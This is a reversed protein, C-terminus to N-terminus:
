PMPDIIDADLARPPTFEVEYSRASGQAFEVAFVTRLSDSGPDGAALFVVREFRNLGDHEWGNQAEVQLDGFDWDQYITEAAQRRKEIINERPFCRTERGDRILVIVGRKELAAIGRSVNSQAIGTARSIRGITVGPEVQLVEFIRAMAAGSGKPSTSTIPKANRKLDRHYRGVIERASWDHFGYALRRLAERAFEAESLNLHSIALCLISQGPSPVKIDRDGEISRIEIGTEGSVVM